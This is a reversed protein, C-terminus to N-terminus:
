DFSNNEELLRLVDEPIPPAGIPSKGPYRWASIIRIKEQKTKRKESQAKRKARQYMLWIETPRVRSKTTQMIAVTRPAVGKEERGPNRLLRKLRTESLNYFKMKEKVHETWHILDTDRPKKFKM